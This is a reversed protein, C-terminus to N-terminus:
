AISQPDRSNDFMGPFAILLAAGGGLLSIMAGGIFGYYEWDGTVLGLHATWVINATGIEILSLSAVFVASRASEGLERPAWLWYLVAMGSGIVITGLATKIWTFIETPGNVLSFIVYMTAYVSVLVVLAALTRRVMIVEESPIPSQREFSSVLRDAPGFRAIAERQADNTAWGGARLEDARQRLHDEVEDIIRGRVDPKAALNKALESLYVQIPDADSM